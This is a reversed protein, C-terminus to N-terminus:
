SELWLTKFWITMVYESRKPVLAMSQWSILDLPNVGEPQSVVLVPYNYFAVPRICIKGRVYGIMLFFKFLSISSYYIYPPRIMVAINGANLGRNASQAM